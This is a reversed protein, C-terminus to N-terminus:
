ELDRRDWRWRQGYLDISATGGSVRVGGVGLHAHNHIFQTETVRLEGNVSFVAGAALGDGNEFVTRTIDVVGGANYVGAAGSGFNGRFTTDSITVVGHNNYLAGADGTENQIFAGNAITVVGGDSFLGSGRHDVFVPAFDFANTITVGQLKLRGTAAVHLIRFGPAGSARALTAGNTGGDITVTSTISPLGNPGDTNNDVDTLAYTGGALHITTKHQPDASAQNLAAILCQVDGAGCDISAAAAGRSVTLALVVALAIIHFRDRM